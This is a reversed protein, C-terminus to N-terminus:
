TRQRLHLFLALIQDGGKGGEGGGKGREVGGRGIVKRGGM